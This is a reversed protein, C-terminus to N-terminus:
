SAAFDFRALADAWTACRTTNAPSAAIREDCDRWDSMEEIFVFQACGMSQSTKMDTWGDGIFITESPAIGTEALIRQVHEVKTTPSGCIARFRPAIAHMGDGFVVGLEEQSGGSVIWVGEGASRTVGDCVALAEARPTLTAYLEMCTASYLSLAEEVRRTVEGDSGGEEAFFREFKIWRSVSVDALHFDNVFRDCESDVVSMKLLANKYAATKLHNSNFVIGDCDMFVLRFPLLVDATTRFTRSM